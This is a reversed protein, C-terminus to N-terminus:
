LQLFGKVFDLSFAWDGARAIHATAVWSEMCFRRKDDARNMPKGSWCSRKFNGQADKDVVANCVIVGNPLRARARSSSSWGSWRALISWCTACMRVNKM